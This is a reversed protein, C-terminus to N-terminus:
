DSTLDLTWEVPVDQRLSDRVSCYKNISLEIAREANARDIGAGAIHFSLKVHRLRRPTTDLREGVVNVRLSEPPTRRKALIEVVDVAACAAISALLGDVPSPGAIGSGDLTISPRDTRSAEFRQEGAWHVTIEAARGAPASVGTAAASGDTQEDNM